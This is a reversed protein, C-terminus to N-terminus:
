LFHVTQHLGHDSNKRWRCTVCSTHVHTYTIAHFCCSQLASSIELPKKFGHKQICLPRVFAEIKISLFPKPLTPRVFAKTKGVQYFPLSHKVFAEIKNSLFAFYAECFGWNLNIFLSQCLPGCLLRLKIQYFPLSRKVFAEIKNSLFPKPLTHLGWEGCFHLGSWEVNFAKLFGSVPVPLSGNNL